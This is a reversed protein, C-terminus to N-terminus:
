SYQDLVAEVQEPTMRGHHKGDVILEPGISCSGLCSGRELTFRGAADTEGPKLGTVAEVKALLKDGGRLHCTMGTCVHLEHRGKPTLSFVKYFSAIQIAQALPVGLAAAVEALVERPLWNLEHQIETLAHILAEPKGRYNEIIANVAQECM